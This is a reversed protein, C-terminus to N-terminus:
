VNDNSVIQVMCLQQIILYAVGPSDPQTAAELSTKCVLPLREGGISMM